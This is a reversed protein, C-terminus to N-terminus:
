KYETFRLPKGALVGTYNGKDITLSGNILLYEIGESLVRPNEKTSKDQITEPNFIVIDAVYGKNIWGRDKLGMVKAPLSTAARIAHEMTITKETLVNNRIKRPFAGFDRPHLPPTKTFTNTGDTCTMVYPKKLFHEHDEPFGVNMYVSKAGMQILKIVGEVPALGLIALIESTKKGEWEPKTPMSDVRVLELNVIKLKIELAKKFKEMEAPDELDEIDRGGLIFDMPIVTKGTEYLPIQDAYVAVGRSQAEEILQTVKSAMGQDAENMVGIHSIDVTVGTEEGIKIAETIGEIWGVPKKFRASSMERIHSAYIGGFEAVVRTLEIIEETSAYYGPPYDLGTSMGWAGEEMSQRVLSKMEKLEVDTPDRDESGMVTDRLRSLGILPIINTSVGRQKLGKVLDDIHLTGYGCSGTVVTTIGQYPFRKIHQMEIKEFDAEYYKKWHDIEDDEFMCHNHVDIFGPAVILGQADITRVATGEIAKGIEVIKGDKVAVDQIRCASLSGDYVTGNKILLDYDHSDLSVESVAFIGITCLLFSLIIIKWKM